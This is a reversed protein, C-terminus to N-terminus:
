VRGGAFGYLGAVPASSYYDIEFNKNEYKKTKATLRSGHVALQPEFPNECELYCFALLRSRM